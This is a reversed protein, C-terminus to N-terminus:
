NKKRRRVQAVYGKNISVVTRRSQCTNCHLFNMRNEKKLETDTSGCTNCKVFEAVYHRVVSEVQKPMFRGRITLRQSGDISGNTGLEALTYELVHDLSRHLKKCVIPFNAWVTKTTGDRVLDPPPLRLKSDKFTSSSKGENLLMQQMRDLLEFYDYDRDSTQWDSNSRVHRPAVGDISATADSAEGSPSAATEGPAVVTVTKKKKKKGFSMEDLEQL